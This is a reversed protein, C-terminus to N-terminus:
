RREVIVPVLGLAERLRAAAEQADARSAYPGAQVRYLATDGVTALLPVLWEVEEGVKRQFSEAGSSDRFAALQVFWGRASPAAGATVPPAISAVVPAASSGASPPEDAPVTPLTAVPVVATSPVPVPAAPAASASRGARAPPAAALRTSESEGGRRWSGARIEDFTIRELEVPAVGRLLDLRLAAAYSLDVIRGAHFPGRDNVRVVVEKGNAPNRIRAYSPLPLTPHAATMAYMDYTEGNATRRGHFKRGYWSALGRESFAGDRTVPVYDRGLVTYPKNPGGQRIPEIRPEADPLSALDPPIDTGVGDRDSPPASRPASPRDPAPKPASGCGALVLGLALAALAGRPQSLVGIPMM